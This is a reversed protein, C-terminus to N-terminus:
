EIEGKPLGNLMGLEAYSKAIVEDEILDLDNEDAYETLHCTAWIVDSVALGARKIGAESRFISPAVIREKGFESEVIIEGQIVFNICPYKHIKGVVVMGKPIFLERCYIACKYKESVPTFFHTLKCRNEPPPALGGEVVQKMLEGLSSVDKRFKVRSSIDTVNNM